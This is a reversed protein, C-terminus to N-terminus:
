SIHRLIPSTHFSYLIKTPFGSPFLSIPLGPSLHSSVMLSSRPSIPRTPTSHICRTLSLSWARTFVTIFRRIGNFPFKKTSSRSNAESSSSHEMCSATHQLPWLMCRFVIFTNRCRYFSRFPVSPNHLVSALIWIAMHNVMSVSRRRWVFSFHTFQNWQLKYGRGDQLLWETLLMMGSCISPKM